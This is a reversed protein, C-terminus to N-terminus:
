WPQQNFGGNESVVVRRRPWPRTFGIAGSLGALDGFFPLAVQGTSFTATRSDEFGIQNNLWRSFCSNTLPFSSMGYIFHFMGFGHKFGGLLRLLQHNETATLSVIAVIM